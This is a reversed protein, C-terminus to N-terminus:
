GVFAVRLGPRASSLSNMRTRRGSDRWGSGRASRQASTSAVPAVDGVNGGDRCGFALVPAGYSEAVTLDEYFRLM